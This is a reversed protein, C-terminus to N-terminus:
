PSGQEVSLVYQGVSNGDPNSWRQARDLFGAEGYEADLVRLRVQEIDGASDLDEPVEWLLRVEETSAPQVWGIRGVESRRELQMEGSLDPETEAPLFELELLAEMITSSRVAEREHSTLEAHIAVHERVEGFTEETEIGAGQVSLTFLDNSLPQDTAVSREEVAAFGGQVWIGASLMGAALLFVM